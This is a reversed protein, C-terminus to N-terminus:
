SQYLLLSILLVGSLANQDSNKMEQVIGIGRAMSVFQDSFEKLAIPILIQFDVLTKESQWYILAQSELFTEATKANALNSLM